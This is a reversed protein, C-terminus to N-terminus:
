LFIWFVKKGPIAPPAPTSGQLASCRLGTAPLSFRHKLIRHPADKVWFITQILQLAVIANLQRSRRAERGSAPHKVGGRRQGMSLVAPSFADSSTSGGEGLRRCLVSSEGAPSCTTHQLIQVTWSYSRAARSEKQQPSGSISNKFPM